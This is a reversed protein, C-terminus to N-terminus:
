DREVLSPPPNWPLDDGGYGMLLSLKISGTQRTTKIPTLVLISCCITPQSKLSPGEWTPQTASPGDSPALWPSDMHVPTSSSPADDQEKAVSKALFLTLGLPMLVWCMWMLGSKNGQNRKLLHPPMMESHGAGLNKPRLQLHLDEM